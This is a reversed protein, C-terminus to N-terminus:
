GSARGAVIAAPDCRQRPDRFKTRIVSDRPSICTTQLRFIGKAGWVGTADFYPSKRHQQALASTTQTSRTGGEHSVRRIPRFRNFGSAVKPRAIRMNRDSFTANEPGSPAENLPRLQSWHLESALDTVHKEGGTKALNPAIQRLSALGRHLDYYRDVGLEAELMAQM